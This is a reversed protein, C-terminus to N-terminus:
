KNEGRLVTPADILRTYSFVFLTLTVGKVGKAKQRKGKAKQRRGEAKQRRGKAKQRGGERRRRSM